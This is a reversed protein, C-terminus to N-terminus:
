ERGAPEWALALTLRSRTAPDDLQDGFLENLRGLRYRVTQPHVHLETAIAQRDGMHRLWAALTESLRARSSPAARDLPGLVQRRLADLLQGDRHEIIADLHEDTFVPDETLVGDQQHRV